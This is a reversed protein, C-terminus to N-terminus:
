FCKKFKILNLGKRLNVKARWGLIKYALNSSIDLSYNQKKSKVHEIINISKKNIYIKNSVKALDHITYM